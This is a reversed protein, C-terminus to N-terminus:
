KRKWTFYQYDLSITPKMFDNSSNMEGGASLKGLLCDHLTYTQTAQDNSDLLVLTVTFTLDKYASRTGKSDNTSDVAWMKDELARFNAIITASVDDVFTLNINGEQKVIGNRKLTHGHIELTQPQHEREPITSSICRLHLDESALAVANPSGISILWNFTTQFDGIKNVESASFHM